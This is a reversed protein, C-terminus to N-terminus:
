PFGFGKAGPNLSAPKTRKAVTFSYHGGNPSSRPPASSSIRFLYLAAVSSPGQAQRLSFVTLLSPGAASANCDKVWLKGM